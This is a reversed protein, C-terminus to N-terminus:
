IRLASRLFFGSRGSSVFTSNKMAIRSSARAMGRWAKVGIKATARAAPHVAWARSCCRVPRNIRGLEDYTPSIGFAYPIRLGSPAAASGIVGGDDRRVCPGMGRSRDIAPPPLVLVLLM